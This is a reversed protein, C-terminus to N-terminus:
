EIVRYAVIDYQTNGRDWDWEWVGATYFDDEKGCRFRVEVKTEPPVPREGGAWEIWEGM